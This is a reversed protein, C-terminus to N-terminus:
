VLGYSRLRYILPIENTNNIVINQNKAIYLISKGIKHCSIVESNIYGISNQWIQDLRHNVGEKRQKAFYIAAENQTEELLTIRVLAGIEITTSMFGSESLSFSFFDDAADSSIPSFSSITCSNPDVIYNSTLLCVSQAHMASYDKFCNKM